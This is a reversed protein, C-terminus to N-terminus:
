MGGLIAFLQIVAGGILTAGIDWEEITETTLVDFTEKLIAVAATWALPVPSHFVVCVFAGTILGAVFHLEKDRPIAYIAKVIADWAKRVFTKISM